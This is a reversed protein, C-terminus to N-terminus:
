SGQQNLLIIQTLFYFFATLAIPCLTYNKLTIETSSSIHQTQFVTVSHIVNSGTKNSPYFPTHKQSLM